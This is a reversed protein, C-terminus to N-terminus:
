QEKGAQRVYDQIVNRLQKIEHILARKLRIEYKWRYGLKHIKFYFKFGPIRFYICYNDSHYLKKLRYLIYAPYFWQKRLLLVYLKKSRSNAIRQIVLKDESDLIDSLIKMFKIFSKCKQLNYQHFLIGQFQFTLFEERLDTWKSQKQLFDRSESLNKLFDFKYFDTTTEKDVISKGTNKRYFYLPENVVSIREALAATKVTFLVDEYIRNEPNLLHHKEIFERRYIRDWVGIFQLIRPHEMATFYGTMSMASYFKNNRFIETRGSNTYYLNVNTLVIDANFLQAKKVLKEFMSPHIFDDSDVFGLYEGTARVIGANRAAGLGRNEQEIVFIRNDAVKYKNLIEASKDTSGDNICIVEFDTLTQNLVSDLCKALYNEVNFVPIIISLKPM